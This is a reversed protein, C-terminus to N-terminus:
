TFSLEVNVTSKLPEARWDALMSEPERAAELPATVM